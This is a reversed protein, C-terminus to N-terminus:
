QHQKQADADLADPLFQTAILEAITVVTKPLIPKGPNAPLPTIIPTLPVYSIVKRILKTYQGSKTFNEKTPYSKGIIKLLEKSKGQMDPHYKM